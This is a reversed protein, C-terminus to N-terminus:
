AFAYFSFHVVWVTGRMCVLVWFVPVTAVVIFAVRLRSVCACKSIVYVPVASLRFPVLLECILEYPFGTSLFFCLVCLLLDAVGSFLYM